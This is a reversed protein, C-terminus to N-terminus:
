KQRRFLSAFGFMDSYFKDGNWWNLGFGPKDYDRITVIIEDDSLFSLSIVGEGLSEASNDFSRNVTPLKYYIEQTPRSYIETVFMNGEESSCSGLVVGQAVMNKPKCNSISCERYYNAFDGTASPSLVLGGDKSSFSLSFGENHIPCLELDDGEDMYFFELDEKDVIEVFKWEGGLTEITPIGRVTVLMTEVDGAIVGEEGALSIGLPANLDHIGEKAKIELTGSNEGNLVKVLGDSSIYKSGEGNFEVPISMDGNAAWDKGSLSGSINVKIRLSEILDAEEYAFSCILAESTSPSLLCIAKAGPVYGAPLATFSLKISTVAEDEALEEPRNPVDLTVSTEGAPVTVSQEVSALEKLSSGIYSIRVSATADSESALNTKIEVPTSETGLYINGTLSAFEITPIGLKTCAAACAVAAALIAITRKM